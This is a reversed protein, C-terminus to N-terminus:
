RSWLQPEREEDGSSSNNIRAESHDRISVLLAWSPAIMGTVGDVILVGYHVGGGRRHFLIYLILRLYYEVKIGIKEQIIDDMIVFGLHWRGQSRIMPKIFSSAM